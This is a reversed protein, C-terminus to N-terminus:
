TLDLSTWFHGSIFSFSVRGGEQLGRCAQIQMQCVLRVHCGQISYSLFLYLIAFFFLQLIFGPILTVSQLCHMHVKSPELFTMKHYDILGVQQLARM